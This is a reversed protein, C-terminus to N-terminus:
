DGRHQVRGARPRPRQAGPRGQPFGLRLLRWPDAPAPQHLRARDPRAADGAAPPGRLLGAGGRGGHALDPGIPVAIMDKDVQEGLRVGADYRDAVIDTLAYDSIIEVHHGSVRAAAARARALPDDRLCTGGLHHARHRGAQRAARQAGFSAKSRTSGRDSGALLREGAETPAVSRTTRTLLRLGLREELARITYSLASQSVGLKAAARTFSRERAVAIFALLDNLNDRRM